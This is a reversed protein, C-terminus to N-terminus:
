DDKVGPPHPHTALLEQLAELIRQTAGPALQAGAHELLRVSLVQEARELAAQGEETLWVLSRRRDREDPMRELLGRTELRAILESTASQSREFHRSAETVTLPGTERLHRLIGHAEQSIRYGDVPDRRHFRLYVAKYAETFERAFTEPNM